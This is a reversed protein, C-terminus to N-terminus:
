HEDGRYADAFRERLRYKLIKGGVTEPFEDVFIVRKPREFGALRERCWALLEEETPKCDPAAVVVATVAEGWRDHPLGVVAAKVVGEHQLLVSEVRISSVNEGGSKVIDKYRDVMVRLGQEDYSCSDGSHFWGFRFAEETAEEDRYYGAMVAPSRYVAEGPVGPSGALSEGEPDMVMSALLPSPVGVYNVAPATAAYIEPWRSPWFRHCAIAETQGFIEFVLLDEACHRELEALLRPDLAAWGYVIVRLSKADVAGLRPALAGLLQPSGAWLATVREAAVASAIQEPDPRRGLVLTGGTVLTGFAFPHDGVHYMLPLFSCLVLEDEIRLGRTLSLAFGHGALHAGSHSLMVAKPLATTGSTFLLEWIDDGHIEVDPETTPRGEIFAAFSVTGPLAPGGVEITIAPAAGTGGFVADVLDGLEADVVALAPEVREILAAIVDPALSPNVPAVTMGAKAVGLKVLFAEVSNECLMMVVSGPELGRAALAHAFQNAIRDAQRYTVRAFSPDGIADGWGVLALRDPFSWTMREVVDGVAVRNWRDAARRGRLSTVDLGM